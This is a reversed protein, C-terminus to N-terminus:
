IFMHLLSIKLFAVNSLLTTSYIACPVVNLIRHYVLISFFIFFTYMHIVSDSQQVASVLM